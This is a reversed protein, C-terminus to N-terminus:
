RIGVIPIALYYSIDPSSTLDPFPLVGSWSFTFYRLAGTNEGRWTNSSFAPAYKRWGLVPLMKDSEVARFNMGQNGSVALYYPRAELPISFSAGMRGKATPLILGSDYLVTTPHMDDGCNYIGLRIGVTPFYAQQLEVVMQTFTRAYPVYIPVLGITSGGFEAFGWPSAISAPGIYHPANTLFTENDTFFAVPVGGYNGKGTPGTGGLVGTPGGPKGQSGTRGTPGTNGTPGPPGDEGDSGVPGTEEGSGAPGTNGRFGTSGTTGSPGTPGTAGIPGTVGHPGTMGDLAPGTAGTPGTSNFAPGTPGTIAVSPKLYVLAPDNRTVPM